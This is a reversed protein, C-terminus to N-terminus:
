LNLLYQQLSENSDLDLKKRLRYRDSEVARITKNMFESIEKSTLNMRVYAAVKIESLSLDPHKERLSTIFNNYFKDLRPEIYKWEKDDSIEREIEDIVVNLGKKVSEKAKASLAMLRNKYNVLVRNRNVTYYTLKQLESEINEKELEVIRKERAAQEQTFKNRIYRIRSFYVVIIVSAILLIILVIFWTREWFPPLVTIKLEAINNGWKGDNNSAQVKFTYEGSELNSYSAFRRNHDTEIWETEFGELMYKYMCKQPHTYNLAAYEVSFIKDSYKLEIEDTFTINKELIVRNNVTDGPSVKHNLVSLNTYVVRPLNQNFAISQPNFIDIGNNSGALLAGGQLKILTKANFENSTLGDSKFFATFNDASPRLMALGDYTAAWINGAADENVGLVIMGPLGNQTTYHMLSKDEKKYKCLGNGECAIWINGYSDQFFDKIMGEEWVLSEPNSSLRLMKAAQKDYVYIGDGETGFWIDGDADEMIAMVNPHGVKILENSYPGINKFTGTEKNFIDVGNGLLGLWIKEQSDTLLSWVNESHVADDDQDDPMYRTFLDKQPNYVTLGGAFTGILINGEADEDICTIVDSSLSNPNNDQYYFSELNKNDDIRHLGEGDTGIWINNKSDQFASIVSKETFFAHVNEPLWTNKFKNMLPDYYAVGSSFTGTWIRNNDDMYLSYIHDGPLSNPVNEKKMLYQFSENEPNFINIGGGDTAIWIKGEPDLIMDGNLVETNLGTDSKFYFTSEGTNRNYRCLGHINASIWLNGDSDELLRKRYNLVQRNQPNYSLSIFKNEKRDFRQIDNEWTAIYIEGDSTELVDSVLFSNLGEGTFPNYISFSDTKPNYLALGNSSGICVTSDELVTICYVQNGIEVESGYHTFSNKQKDFKNLGNQYTGIWLFGSKDEAMSLIRNGSMSASDSTNRFVEMEYGDFRCLGNRTGFWMFGQQDQLICEVNNHSLGEDKSIQEFSYQGCVTQIFTFLLAFAAYGKFHLQKMLNGLTFFLPCM